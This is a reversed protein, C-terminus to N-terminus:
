APMADGDDEDPAAAGPDPRVVNGSLKSWLAALESAKQTNDERFLGLIKAARELSANKDWFKYKIRGLEDIEFSAVAAAVHPPLEDPMLFTVKDTEPGGAGKVRRVLGAPSSMAIRATERLIQEAKLVSRDALEAQLGKVREQVKGDAAMTSAKAHVVEPKWAKSAPYAIRYAEAQSVGEVLARAFAEQKQTLGHENKM